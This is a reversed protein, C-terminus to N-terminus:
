MVVKMTVVLAAVDVMAMRTAMTIVVDVDGDGDYARGSESDGDDGGDGNGIGGGALAIMTISNHVPVTLRLECRLGPSFSNLEPGSM